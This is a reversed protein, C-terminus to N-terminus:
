FTLQHLRVCFCRTELGLRLKMLISFLAESRCSEKSGSPFINLMLNLNSEILHRFTAYNLINILWIWISLTGYEPTELTRPAQSYTKLEFQGNEQVMFVSIENM